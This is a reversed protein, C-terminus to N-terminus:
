FEGNEHGHCGVMIRQLIIGHNLCRVSELKGYTHSYLKM